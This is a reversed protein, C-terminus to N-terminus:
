STLLNCENSRTKPGKSAVQLCIVGETEAPDATTTMKKKAGVGAGDVQMASPDPASSLAADSDAGMGSDLEHSWGFWVLGSSSSPSLAADKVTALSQLNYELYLEQKITM